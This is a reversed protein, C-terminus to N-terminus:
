DDNETPIELRAESMREAADLAERLLAEQIWYRPDTCCIAVPNGKDLVDAVIAIDGLRVDEGFEEKCLEMFDLTLSGLRSATDTTFPRSSM